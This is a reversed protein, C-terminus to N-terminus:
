KHNAGSTHLPCDCPISGKVQPIQYKWTFLTLQTLQLVGMQHQLSKSTPTPFLCVCTTVVPTLLLTNLTFSSSDSSLLALQDERCSAWWCKLSMSNMGTIYIHSLFCLSIWEGWILCSELSFHFRPKLPQARLMIGPQDKKKKKKVASCLMHSRIERVLYWVWVGPM